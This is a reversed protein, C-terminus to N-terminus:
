ENDKLAQYASMMAAVDGNLMANTARALDRRIMAAGFAGVGGPLGTYVTVLQINRDIEAKLADALNTPKATETM